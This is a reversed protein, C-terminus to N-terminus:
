KGRMMENWVAAKPRPRAALLRALAKTQRLRLARLM